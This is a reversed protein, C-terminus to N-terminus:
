HFLHGDSKRNGHEFIFKADGFRWFEVVEDLDWTTDLNSLWDAQDMEAQHNMM